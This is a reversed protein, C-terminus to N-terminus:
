ASVNPSGGIWNKYYETMIKSFGFLKSRDGSPMDALERTIPLDRVNIAESIYVDREMKKKFLIRYDKKTSNPVYGMVLYAEDLKLAAELLQVSGKKWEDNGAGGDPAILILDGEGLRKVAKDMSEMNKAQRKKKMKKTELNLFPPQFVPIIHKGIEDGFIRDVGRAGVISVNDRPPAFSFLMMPELSHPHNCVMIVPKEALVKKTEEQNGEWNDALKTKSERFIIHFGRSPGLAITELDARELLKRPSGHHTYFGIARFQEYNGM